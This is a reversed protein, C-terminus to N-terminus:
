PRPRATDGAGASPVLSLRMVLADRSGGDPHRYYAPRRAIEAFGADHYLAIAAANDAAVELLMVEARRQRATALCGDLLRRGLGKRRAEPAVALTLLEAEDAVVRALAFGQPEAVMFCHVSALLDVIEGASWPRPVTFCRAHLAAM